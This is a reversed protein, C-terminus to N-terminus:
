ERAFGNQGRPAGGRGGQYGDGRHGGGGGRGGRGGRPAGVRDSYSSILQQFKAIIKPTSTKGKITLKGTSVM